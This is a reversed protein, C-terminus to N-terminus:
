EGRFPIDVDVRGGSQLRFSEDVRNTALSFSSRVAEAIKDGFAKFYKNLEARRKREEQESELEDEDAFNRRRKKNGTEDFSADGAERFFQIDKAKKKGILIPNKLHIHLVVILEGDCPQFLLHKINSFLIDAIFRTTLVASRIRPAPLSVSRRNPRRRRSIDFVTPTFRSMERKDSEM